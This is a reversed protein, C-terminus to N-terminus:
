RWRVRKFVGRHEDLLVERFIEAVHRPPCGWVGCGLAGAILETHGFAAGAQVILRIKLRLTDADEDNLRYNGTMQPMKIGPCALFSLRTGIPLRKYGNEETDFLVHVDRAYLAEDSALPYMNPTLHAFLATRRFLSEEQMNGGAHVCGGPVHADALILVLPRAASDSDLAVEIADRDLVSIDTDAFAAMPPLDDVNFKLRRTPLEPIYAHSYALAASLASDRQVFM